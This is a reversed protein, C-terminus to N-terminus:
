STLKTRFEEFANHQDAMWVFWEFNETLKTLPASLLVYNVIFRLFYGSLGLFRRLEHVHHVDTPQAFNVVAEVKRRPRIVGKSICFGLYDLELVEAPVEDLVTVNLERYGEIVFQSGHPLDLWTRGVLIDVHLTDDPVVRILHNAGLFGDILVDAEGVGLTQVSPKNAHGATYLACTVLRAGVFM